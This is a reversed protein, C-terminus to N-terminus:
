NVTDSSLARAPPHAPAAAKRVPASNMEKQDTPAIMSPGGLDLKFGGDSCWRWGACVAERLCIGGSRPPLPARHAQLCSPQAPNAARVRARQECRRRHWRRWGAARHLGACLWGTEAALGGGVSGRLRLSGAAQTDVRPLPARRSCRRSCRRRLAVAGAAHRLGALLVREGSSPRHLRRPGHDEARRLFEAGHNAPSTYLDAAAPPPTQSFRLDAPAGAGAAVAEGNHAAAPPCTM